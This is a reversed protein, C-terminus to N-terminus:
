HTRRAPEILLQGGTDEVHRPDKRPDFSYPKLTKCLEKVKYLPGWVREHHPGLRSSWEMPVISLQFKLFSKLGLKEFKLFWWCTNRINRLREHYYRMEHPNEQYAIAALRATHEMLELAELSRFTQLLLSVGTDMTMVTQPHYNGFVAQHKEIAERDFHQSPLARRSYWWFSGLVPRISSKATLAIASDPGWSGGALELVQDFLRQAEAADRGKMTLALRLLMEAYLAHKEGFLRGAKELATRRLKESKRARGEQEYIDALLSDYRYSFDDWWPQSKDALIDKVIKHAEKFQRKILLVDALNTKALFADGSAAPLLSSAIRHAKQALELGSELDYTKEIQIVWAYKQMVIFHTDGLLESWDHLEQKQISRLSSLNERGFYYSLDYSHSITAWNRAWATWQLYLSGQVHTAKLRQLEDALEEEDGNEALLCQHKSLDQKVGFGIRYCFALDLCHQQRQRVHVESDHYLAECQEICRFIEKRIRYDVSHLYLMALPVQFIFSDNLKSSVMSVKCVTSVNFKAMLGTHDGARMYGFEEKAGPYRDYKDEIIPRSEQTNLQLNRLIKQLIPLLVDVSSARVDPDAALALKFLQRIDDMSTEPIWDTNKATQVEAFEEMVSPKRQYYEHEFRDGSDFPQNFLLLWLCCVGFSYVMAKVAAAFTFGRHHYEPAPITWLMSEPIKVLHEAQGPISPVFEACGFDTVRIVFAGDLEREEYVLINSPKIDNHTLGTSLDTVIRDMGCLVLLRLHLESM